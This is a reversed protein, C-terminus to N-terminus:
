TRQFPPVVESVILSFVSKEDPTDIVKGQHHVFGDIVPYGAQKLKWMMMKSYDASGTRIMYIIGWNSPKAIFLDLKIGQPHQCKVYKGTEPDGKIIEMTMVSSIFGRDRVMKQQFLELAGSPEQKPICCIEIDKVEPKQRRISGAVAIQDCYPRLSEVIRDAIVQAESLPTLTEM